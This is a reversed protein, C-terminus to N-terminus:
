NGSRDHHETNRQCDGMRRWPGWRRRRIWGGFTVCKRLLAGQAGTRVSERVVSRAPGSHAWGPRTHLHARDCRPLRGQRKRRGPHCTQRHRSRHGCRRPWAPPGTRPRTQQDAGHEGNRTRTAPAPGTGRDRGPGSGGAVAEGRGIRGVRGRAIAPRVPAGSSLPILPDPAAGRPSRGGCEPAPCGPSGRRGTLCSNYTAARKWPSTSRQRKGGNRTPGLRAAHWVSRM